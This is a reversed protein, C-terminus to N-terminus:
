LVRFYVTTSCPRGDPWLAYNPIDGSRVWGQREYVRAADSGTVTDLVLLTFGRATAEAEAARLLAAGVGGRRARRHVLMKSIDARHPQNPMSAPVLQLTGCIGADDEAIFIFRAGSAASAACGAFFAEAEERTLGDMFGVSAGGAVCDQLVAALAPM